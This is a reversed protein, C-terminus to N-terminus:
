FLTVTRIDYFQESFSFLSFTANFACRTGGPIDQLVFRCLVCKLLSALTTELLILISFRGQCISQPSNVVKLLPKWTASTTFFRRALAPSTPEIGSNPLDGLPPCPLGSWYEQRSFEVSLPAQCAITWLTASDSAVSTVQCVFPIFGNNVLKM